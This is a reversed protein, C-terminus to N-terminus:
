DHAHIEEECRAFEHFWLVLAAVMINQWYLKLSNQLFFFDYWFSFLQTKFMGKASNILKKTPLSEKIALIEVELM